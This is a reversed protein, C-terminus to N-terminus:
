FGADIDDLNREQKVADIAKDLGTDVQEAVTTDPTEGTPTIRNGDDDFNSDDEPEPAVEKTVTYGREELWSIVSPIMTYSPDPRENLTRVFRKDRWVQMYEPEAPGDPCGCQTLHKRCKRCETWALAVIRRAEKCWRCDSGVQCGHSLVKEADAQWAVKEVNM